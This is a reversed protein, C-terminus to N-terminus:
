SHGERRLIGREREWMKAKLKFMKKKEKDDKDESLNFFTM